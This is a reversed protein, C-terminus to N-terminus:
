SSYDVAVGTKETPYYIDSAVLIEFSSDYWCPPLSLIFSKGILYFTKIM